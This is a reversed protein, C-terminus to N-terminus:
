ATSRAPGLPGPRPAPVTSRRTPLSRHPPVPTASEDVDDALNLALPRHQTQAVRSERRCNGILPAPESPPRRRPDANGRHISLKPSAKHTRIQDHPGHRNPPTAATPDDQRSAFHFDNVCSRGTRWGNTRCASHAVWGLQRLGRSTFRDRVGFPTSTPSMITPVTCATGKGSVSQSLLM